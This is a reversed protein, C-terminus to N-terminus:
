GIHRTYRRWDPDKTLGDLDAEPMCLLLPIAGSEVPCVTIGGPLPTTNPRRSYKLRGLVPGFNDSMASDDEQAASQSANFATTGLDTDLNRLGAYVLRSKDPERALFTAYSRIAWATNAANLERRLMQAIASLPQATVRAMPLQSVSFYTLHGIYTIPVGVATRGDISRTLKTMTDPSFGRALRVATIRQWCFASIVDNESIQQQQQSPSLSSASGRLMALASVPLKFYCWKAPSSPPATVHGPPARLYSHDKVPEGRPILPVVYRRDRNAQELDTASIERSQLITSLHRMIQVMGTGDVVMHHASLNIIVGGHVLNVQVVMVPIPPELGHPLPLGPFPTLVNGELMSIPAGAQLIEAIPPMLSECDKVLMMENKSVTSPWPALTYLGSSGPPGAVHLVQGALWPVQAALKKLADRITTIITERSTKADPQFSFAAHSYGNLFPFQSVVDQHLDVESDKRSEIQAKAPHEITEVTTAKIM